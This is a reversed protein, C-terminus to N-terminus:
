AKIEHIGGERRCLSGGAHGTILAQMEALISLAIQAPTEAGIDLGAPGHLAALTQESFVIGDSALEGLLRGTRDKPGLLGIYRPACPILALLVEKDQNYHHTMVVVQPRSSFLSAPLTDPRLCLVADAEPFREPLAYGPRSDIVTIHRGLQKAFSVLPMADEGGGFIVLPIPATVTEFLVRLSGGSPLPVDRVAARKGSAFYPSGSLLDGVATNEFNATIQGDPWQQIRRGPSIAPFVAESHFVTAMRGPVSGRQCEKLFPLLGHPDGPFLPEILIRVVGNCGLGMGFVIDGSATSDYTLLLPKSNSLVSTAHKRVDNELCGGSIMGASGGGRKVLMRAGPHRYASGQLDVVTAMAASEGDSLEDALALIDHLDDM